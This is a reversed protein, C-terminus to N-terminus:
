MGARCSAPDVSLTGPIYDVVDVRQASATDIKRGVHLPLGDLFTLDLITPFSGQTPPSGKDLGDRGRPLRPKKVVEGQM